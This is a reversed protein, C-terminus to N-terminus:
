LDTYKYGRRVIAILSIATTIFLVFIPYTLTFIDFLYLLNVIFSVLAVILFLKSSLIQTKYWAKEDNKLYELNIAFKDGFKAKKLKYSIMLYGIQVLLMVIFPTSLYIGINYLIAIITYFIIAYSFFSFIKKYEKICLNMIALILCLIALLLFYYWPKIVLAINNADWQLTLDVFKTIIIFSISGILNIVSLFLLLYKKM